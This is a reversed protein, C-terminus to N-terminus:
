ASPSSSPSSGILKWHTGAASDTTTGHDVAGLRSQLGRWFRVHPKQLSKAGGALTQIALIAGAVGSSGKITSGRPGSGTAHDM